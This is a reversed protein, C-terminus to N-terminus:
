EAQLKRVSQIVQSVESRETNLRTALDDLQQQREQLGKKEQKLETILQDAEPNNFDWSPGTVAVVDAMTERPPPVPKQWFFVTSVLYVVAGLPATIWSHALLKNM